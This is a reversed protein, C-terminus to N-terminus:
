IKKIVKMFMYWFLFMIAFLFSILYLALIIGSFYGTTNIIKIWEFDLMELTVNILTGIALIITAYTLFKSFETQKNLIKVQENSIEDQKKLIAFVAIPILANPM